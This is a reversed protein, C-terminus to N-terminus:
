EPGVWEELDVIVYWDYDNNNIRYSKYVGSINKNLTIQKEAEERSDFSAIWDGTGDNPYYTDGATLLFRKM